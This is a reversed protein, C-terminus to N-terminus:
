SLYNLYTRLNVKKNIINFKRRISNRHKEVTSPSTNLISAISKTSQGQRVLDAVKIEASTLGQYAGAISKATPSILTDINTRIIGLYASVRDDLSFTELEDLYPFVFRKLNGVMSHEIAKKEIERQDLLSKLAENAKELSIAKDELRKQQRILEISKEAVLEELTERYRRNEILLRKKELARDIALFLFSASELPKYLYDWAGLRLARIVDGRDGEGSIVIIPLEPNKERVNALLEFGDMEPMFLDTILMDPLTIEIRNLAHKGNEATVVNFRRKKLQTKITNRVASEDDVIMITCPTNPEM